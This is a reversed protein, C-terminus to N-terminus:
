DHEVRELDTREAIASLAAEARRLGQLADVEPYYVAYGRLNNWRATYEELTTGGEEAGPISLRLMVTTWVCDSIHSVTRAKGSKARQKQREAEVREIEEGVADGDFSAVGDAVMADILQRVEESSLRAEYDGALRTSRPWHVHVRGDGYVRVLPIPDHEALMCIRKRLEIVVVQPDDPVEYTDPAEPAKPAPQGLTSLSLLMVVAVGATMRASIRPKM